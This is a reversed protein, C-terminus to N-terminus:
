FFNLTQTKIKNQARDRKSTFLSKKDCLRLLKKLVKLLGKWFKQIKKKLVKRSNFFKEISFDYNIVKEWYLRRLSFSWTRNKLKQRRKKWWTLLNKILWNKPKEEIM